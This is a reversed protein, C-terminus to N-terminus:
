FLVLHEQVDDIKSLFYSGAQNITEVPLGLQEAVEMLQLSNSNSAKANLNVMDIDVTV